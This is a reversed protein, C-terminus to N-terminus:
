VTLLMPFFLPSGPGDLIFRALLNTNHLQYSATTVVDSGAKHFFNSVFSPRKIVIKLGSPFPPASRSCGFPRHVVNRWVMFRFFTNNKNPNKGECCVPICVKQSSQGQQKWRLLLLQTVFFSLPLYSFSVETALGGDLILVKEPRRAKIEQTLPASMKPPFTFFVTPLLWLFFFFSFRFLAKKKQNNSLSNAFSYERKEKPPMKKAFDTRNLFFM